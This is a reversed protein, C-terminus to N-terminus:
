FVRLDPTASTMLGAREVHVAHELGRGLKSVKVSKTEHKNSAIFVETLQSVPSDTKKALLKNRLNGPLKPSSLDVPSARKSM